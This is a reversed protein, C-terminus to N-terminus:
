RCGIPVTLSTGTLFFFFLRVILVRGAILQGTSYASCSIVTGLIQVAAGAMVWVRRGIRDSWPSAAM